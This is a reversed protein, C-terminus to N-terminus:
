KSLQATLEERILSLTNGQAGLTEGLTWSNAYFLLSTEAEVITITVQTKDGLRLLEVELIWNAGYERHLYAYPNAHQNPKVQDSLIKLKSAAILDTRLNRVFIQGYEDLGSNSSVHYIAVRPTTDVKWWLISFYLTLAALVLVLFTLLIFRSWFPYRLRHPSSSPSPATFQIGADSGNARPEYASSGALSPTSFSKTEGDDVTIPADAYLSYGRKPVTEIFSVGPLLQAFASRLDSISRNLADESVVQSGWVM